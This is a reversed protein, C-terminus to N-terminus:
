TEFNEPGEALPSEALSRYEEAIFENRQQDIELM